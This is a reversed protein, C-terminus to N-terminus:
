VCDQTANPIGLRRLRLLDFDPALQLSQLPYEEHFQGRLFLAVGIAHSM